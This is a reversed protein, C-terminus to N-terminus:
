RTAALQPLCTFFDTIKMYKRKKGILYGLLINSKTKEVWPLPVSPYKMDPESDIYIIQRKGSNDSPLQTAEKTIKIQYLRDEIWLEDFVLKEAPRKTLLKIRYRVLSGAYKASKMIQYSTVELVEFNRYKFYNYIFTVFLVFSM